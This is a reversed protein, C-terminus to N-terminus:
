VKIFKAIFYGVGHIHPHFRQLYKADESYDSIGKDGLTLNQPAVALDCNKVAYEVVGECEEPTITCVSYTMAGGPKLIEAAAKIFQKQYDSLAKVKSHETNEYVKPTVGLASCPPDVICKDVRLEPHDLHVYRSDQIFIHVNRCGLRNLTERTAEVKRATRDMAYILARDGTLQSIHSTKGGPACNLDAIVDGPRPDLVRSTVMAPMSQPYIWGKLYEPAERLSPVKYLSRVVLVALGKRLRLIEREDMVAIGVAVAGNRDDLITVRDGRRLGRCKIIGPAYVHAGQLVSEATFKDVMVKKELLGIEFPGEVNIYLAEELPPYPNVKVGRSGLSEAVAESSAKM